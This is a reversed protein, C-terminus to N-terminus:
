SAAQRKYASLNFKMPAEEHMEELSYKFIMWEPKAKPYFLEEHKGTLRKSPTFYFVEFTEEADVM